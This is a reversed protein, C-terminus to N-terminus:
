TTAMRVVDSDGASTRSRGGHGRWDDGDQGVVLEVGRMVNMLGLMTVPTDAHCLLALVRTTVMLLKRIQCQPLTMMEISLKIVGGPATGTRDNLTVVNLAPPPSRSPGVSKRVFAIVTPEKVACRETSDAIDVGPTVLGSATCKRVVPAIGM